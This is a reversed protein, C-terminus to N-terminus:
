VLVIVILVGACLGLYKYLKENKTRTQEASKEFTELKKITLNFNKKQGEIDASGLSRVFSALIDFEEKELYLQSQYLKISQNYADLISEAKRDRILKSINVFVQGVVGEQNEGATMLAITLPTATYIIESELYNLIYQIDRLQSVREAFVKSYVFGMSTAAVIIGVGGILKLM